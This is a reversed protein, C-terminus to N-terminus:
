EGIWRARDIVELTITGSLGLFRLLPFDVPVLARMEVVWLPDNRFDDDHEVLQESVEITEPDTWRSSVPVTGTPSGYVAVNRAQDKFEEELPVRTMYRVGDRVGITIVHHTWLARGIEIFGFLLILLLPLVIVFEILAVGSENGILARLPRRLPERM